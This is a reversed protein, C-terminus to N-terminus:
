LIGVYILSLYCDATYLPLAHECAKGSDSYTHAQM